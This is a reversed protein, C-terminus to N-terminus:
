AGHLELWPLSCWCLLCKQLPGWCLHDGTPQIWGGSVRPLCSISCHLLSKSFHHHGLTVKTIETVLLYDIMATENVLARWSGTKPVDAAFKPPIDKVLAAEVSGMYSYIDLLALLFGPSSASGRRKCDLQQQAEHGSDTCAEAEPCTLPLEPGSSEKPMSFFLELGLHCPLCYLLAFRAFQAFYFTRIWFKGCAQSVSM